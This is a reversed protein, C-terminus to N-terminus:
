RIKWFTCLFKFIQYLVFFLVLFWLFHVTNNFLCVKNHFFFFYSFRMTNQISVHGQHASAFQYTYALTYSSNRIWRKLKQTIIFFFTHFSRAEDNEQFYQYMTFAWFIMWFLVYLLYFLIIDPPAAIEHCEDNSGDVTCVASNFQKISHASM